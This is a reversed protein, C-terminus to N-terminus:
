RRRSSSVTCMRVHMYPSLVVIIGRMLASPCLCVCVRLRVCARVCACVCARKSAHCCRVAGDPGPVDVPRFDVFPMKSLRTRVGDQLVVQHWVGQQVLLARLDDLHKDVVAQVSDVTFPLFPVVVGMHVALRSEEWRANMDEKLLMGMLTQPRECLVAGGSSSPHLVPVAVVAV